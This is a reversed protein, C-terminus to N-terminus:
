HSLGVWMVSDPLSEDIDVHIHRDYVGIRRFGALILASVMRFRTRSGSCQLDVGLGATHSSNEVGGATSNEDRTRLGSTIIFPVHAFGRATDLKEVLDPHLGVVEDDSFHTWAM